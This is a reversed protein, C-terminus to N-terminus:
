AYLLEDRGLRGCATPQLGSSAADGGIRSLRGLEVGDLGARAPAPTGIVSDTALHYGVASPSWSLENGCSSTSASLWDLSSCYWAIFSNM